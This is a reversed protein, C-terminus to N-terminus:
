TDVTSAPMAGTRLHDGSRDRCPRCLYQLQVSNPSREGGGGTLLSTDDRGLCKRMDCPVASELLNSSSPNRNAITWCTVFKESADKFSARPVDDHVDHVDCAYVTGALHFASRGVGRPALGVHSDAMSECVYVQGLGMHLTEAIHFASRM